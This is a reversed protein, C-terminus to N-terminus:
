RLTDVTKGTDDCLYATGTFFITEPEKGESFVCVSNMCYKDNGEGVPSCGIQNRLYDETFLVREYCGLEKSFDIVEASESHNAVFSVTRIDTIYLSNGAGYVIKILM